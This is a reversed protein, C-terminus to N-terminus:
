VGMAAGALVQTLCLALRLPRLDNVLPAPRPNKM